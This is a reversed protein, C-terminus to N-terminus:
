APSVLFQRGTARELQRFARVMEKGIAVPDGVGTHVNINVVREQGKGDKLDKIQAQLSAIEDGYQNTAVMGGLQESKDTIGGFLSGAEVAAAKNNALDLILGANGSQFLQALFGPKLGWGTLTKFAAKLASLTGSTSTLNTVFESASAADFLGSTFAGSVSEKLGRFLDMTASLSARLRELAKKGKNAGKELLDGFRGLDESTGRGGKAGGGAGALQKLKDIASQIKDILSQVKDIVWQIPQLMANFANVVAKKIASAIEVLRTKVTSFGSKIAEWVDDARERAKVVANVIADKIADFKDAVFARVAQAGAKIKDWNKAILAVAIGVPGTLIILITKWHRGIFDVATKAAKAVAGFAGNVINRFTESKKYAVVLIAVLAVIGLVVLGIPNAAMALNLAWQVNTFVIQAAAAIKTIATWAAIAKTTAWTIALLGGLTGVLVGAITQNRSIWDVVQMGASTLKILAPQLRLGIEEQLEQFRVQLIKQKGATTDAAKAAAGTYTKALDKQIEDFSKTEGAANKTAVGLRSLGGVSGNQAKQLATVVQDLSKGSGASVDMALAALRQAEGLDGTAVALKSIAPRLEDDAIGLAKGQATIWDEVGAIDSARAGTAKQLTQALKAQALEDDAAAQGAKVAAAGALVLGAALTRGAVVGVKNMRAGLTGFKKELDSATKGAGSDKGLFEIVIKRASSGVGM